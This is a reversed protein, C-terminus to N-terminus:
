EARFSWVLQVMRIAVVLYFSWLFIQIIMRYRLRAVRHLADSINLFMLVASILILGSGTLKAGVLALFMSQESHLASTGAAFLLACVLLNKVNDFVKTCLDNELFKIYIKWATKM